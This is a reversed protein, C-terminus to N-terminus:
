VVAMMQLSGKWADVSLIEEIEMSLVNPTKGLAAQVRDCISAYVPHLRHKMGKPSQKAPCMKTDNLMVTYNTAKTGDQAAVRTEFVNIARAM